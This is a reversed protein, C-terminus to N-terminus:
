GREIGLEGAEALREGALDGDPAVEEVPKWEDAAVAHVHREQDVDPVRDPELRHGLDVEVHALVAM